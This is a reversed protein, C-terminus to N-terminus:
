EEYGLGGVYTGSTTLDCAARCGTVFKLGPAPFEVETFGKQANTPGSCVQVICRVNDVNQVWITGTPGTATTAADCLSINVQAVNNYFWAKRLWFVRGVTIDRGLLNIPGSVGGAAPAPIAGTAMGSVPYRM